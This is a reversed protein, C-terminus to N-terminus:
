LTRQRRQRHKEGDSRLSYLLPNPKPKTKPDPRKGKLISVVVSVMSLTMGTAQRVMMTRNETPVEM